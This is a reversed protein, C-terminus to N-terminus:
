SNQLVQSLANGLLDGSYMAEQLTNADTGMEILLSGSNVNMNYTFNGFNLPRMMHPYMTECQHQLKTAFALNQQWTPFDNYGDDYGTMIMVQAGKKGKYEFTPKLKTNDQQTMSDRHIDLVVKIGKYKKMYRMITDYSRSYAGDYSPSDHQEKAHVVGIGNAKLRKAIREGVAYVNQSNDTTRPYFSEYYYGNDESLYSECTHTHVILVQVKYSDEIEFGLKSELLASIDPEFPTSNRMSISNDSERDVSLDIESVPYTRENKNVTKNQVEKKIQTQSQESKPKSQKNITNDKKSITGNPMISFAAMLATDQSFSFCDGVRKSVCFVSVAVICLSVFICLANKIKEKIEM